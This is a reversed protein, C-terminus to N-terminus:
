INGSRNQILSNSRYGQFNSRKFTNREQSSWPWKKEFPNPKEPESEEEDEAEPEEEEALVDDNDINIAEGNIPDTEENNLEELEDDTPEDVYEVPEDFRYSDDYQDTEDVVGNEPPDTVILSGPPLFRQMTKAISMLTEQIQDPILALDSLRQQM